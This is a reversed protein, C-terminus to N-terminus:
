SFFRRVYIESKVIFLTLAIALLTGLTALMIIDGLVLGFFITPFASLSINGFAPVAGEGLLWSVISAFFVGIPLVMNTM